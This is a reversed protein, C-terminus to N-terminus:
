SMNVESWLFGFSLKVSVFCESLFSLVNCVILRKWFRVWCVLGLYEDCVMVFRVSVYVCVLNCLM